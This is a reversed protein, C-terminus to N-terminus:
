RGCIGIKLGGDLEFSINKLVPPLADSLSASKLYHVLSFPSGYRYRMSFKSFLLHGSSPWDPLDDEIHDTSVIKEKEEVPLKAYEEIRDIAISGNEVSAFSTLLHTMLQGLSVLRFCIGDFPFLQSFCTVSRSLAIGLFAASTTDRLWVALVAVSCAMITQFWLLFVQIFLQGSLQHHLAGQSENVFSANQARFYDQARYARVTILGSV